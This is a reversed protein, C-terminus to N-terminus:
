DRNKLEALLKEFNTKGLASEYGSNNTLESIAEDKNMSNFHQKAIALKDNQKLIEIANPGYEGIYKALTMINDFNNDKLKSKLEAIENNYKIVEQEKKYIDSNIGDIKEQLKVAYEIDFSNLASQKQEELLSKEANLTDIKESTKALLDSIQNMMDKDYGALTNVIISSRALGRRIADNEANEKVSSYADVIEQKSSQKNAKIEEISDDINKTKTKFDENISKISSDKFSALSTEAQTKVEESSPKEYTLETLNSDDKYESLSDYKSDVEKFKDFVTSSKETDSILKKTTEEDFTYKYM